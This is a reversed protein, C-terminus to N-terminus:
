RSRCRTAEARWRGGCPRRWDVARGSGYKVANGILNQLARRIAGEDALVLPLDDPVISRSRSTSPTSCRRRRRCSTAYSARACRGTAGGHAASQRRPGRVRAGARGHRHAPPGRDRDSRRVAPGPGARARRRGLSEARGISHRDAAHAARAVGDRRLGDAARGPAAVAPRQAVILMVGAALVTLIGFSLWLNRRRAADVAADLSGAAHQLRLQWPRTSRPSSSCTTPPRAAHSSSSRCARAASPRDTGAAHQPADRGAGLVHRRGVADAVDATGVQTALEPRIAFLPMTADAHSSDIASGDAVGRAYVTKGRDTSDVVAFRYM